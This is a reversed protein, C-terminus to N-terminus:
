NSWLSKIGKRFCNRDRGGDTKTPLHYEPTLMFQESANRWGNSKHLGFPNTKTFDGHVYCKNQDFAHKTSIAYGSCLPELECATRCEMSNSSFKYKGDVRCDSDNINCGDPRCWGGGVHDFEPDLIIILASYRYADLLKDIM